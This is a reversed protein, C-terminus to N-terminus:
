YGRQRTITYFADIYNDSRDEDQLNTHVMCRAPLDAVYIVFRFSEVDITGRSCNEFSNKLKFFDDSGGGIHKMDAPVFKAETGFPSGISVDADDENLGYNIVLRAEDLQDSPIKLVVSVPFDLIRNKNMDRANKEPVDMLYAATTYCKELLNNRKDYLYVIITGYIDLDGGHPVTLRLNSLTITETFPIERAPLLTFTQKSESTIVLSIGNSLSNIASSLQMKKGSSASVISLAGKENYFKWQQNMENLNDWQQIPTGDETRKDVVDLMKKSHVAAISYNGNGLKTIRFLHNNQQLMDWQVLRMGNSIDEQGAIALYKGSQNIRIKYIGDQVDALINSVTGTKSTNVKKTTHGTNLVNSNAGAQGTENKKFDLIMAPMDLENNLMFYAGNGPTAVSNWHQLIVKQNFNEFSSMVWGKGNKHPFINWRQNNQNLWDWQILKAGAKPPGETSLYKGSHKAQLTYIHNGLHKVIFMFHNKYENDWQVLWGANRTDAGAIAMYKGTQSIKIFYEGDALPQSFTIASYMSFVIILAIIKNM